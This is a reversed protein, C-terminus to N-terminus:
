AHSPDDEEVVNAEEAHAAMAHDAEDGGQLMQPADRSALMAHLCGHPDHRSGQVFITAHTDAIHRRIPFRFAHVRTTDGAIDGPAPIPEEEDGILTEIERKWVHRLERLGTKRDTLGNPRRTIGFDIVDLKERWRVISRIM